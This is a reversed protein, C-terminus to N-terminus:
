SRVASGAPRPGGAGPGGRGGGGGPGRGQPLDLKADKGAARAALFAFLKDNRDKTQDYRPSGKEPNFPNFNKMRNPDFGGRGGPGGGGPGGPGGARPGGGPGGGGPGGPGGGGFGPGGGGPRGGGAMRRQSQQIARDMASMQRADLAKQLKQIAAKAQDQTLKPQKRLPSLAALVQKAQAPKLKTNASREVEMLGRTAMTSLQFTYKHQDRFKAFASAGGPPGGGQQAFATGAALGILPVALLIRSLRM